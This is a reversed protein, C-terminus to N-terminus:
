RLDTITNPTIRKLPGALIAERKDESMHALLVKSSAVYLPRRRGVVTHVRLDRAAIGMKWAGRRQVLWMLPLSRSGSASDVQRLSSQTTEAQLPPIPRPFFLSPSGVSGHGAVYAWCRM